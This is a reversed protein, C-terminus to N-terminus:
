SQRLCVFCLTKPGSRAIEGTNQAAVPATCPCRANVSGSRKLPCPSLPLPNRAAVAAWVCCRCPILPAGRTPVGRSTRRRLCHSWPRAGSDDPPSHTRKYDMTINHRLQGTVYYATTVLAGVLAVICDCFFKESLLEVHGFFVAPQKRM